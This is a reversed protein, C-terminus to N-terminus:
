FLYKHDEFCLIIPLNLLYLFWTRVVTLCGAARINFYNISTKKKVGEESYQDQYGSLSKHYSYRVKAKPPFTRAYSLRATFIIEVIILM